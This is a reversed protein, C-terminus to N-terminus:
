LYEVLVAGTAGTAGATFIKLETDVTFNENMEITYQGTVSSDVQTNAVLLNNVATTGVQIADAGAAATDVFVKIRHVRGKVTGITFEGTGTFTAYQARAFNGAGGVAATVLGDVYAKTTADSAATPAALGTVRQGNIVIAGGAGASLTLDGTAATVSPATVAGLAVAGDAGRVVVKGATLDTASSDLTFVGTASAYTLGTGVASLADKARTEVYGAAEIADLRGDLAGEATTARSIEAAIGAHLENIALVTNTKETTTLESIDGVDAQVGAISTVLGQVASTRAAVEAALDTTLTGEAATARAVEAALDTTLTGEAATARAAEAVVAAGVAEIAAKFTSTGTAASGAAFAVLTGDTALGLAAQSADLEAQVGAVAGDVYTKTAIDGVNAGAELKGGTGIALLKGANASLTEVILDQNFKWATDAMSWTITKDTTGKLTIGGGNAGSDTAATVVGEGDYVVGIEINKDTVTMVETKITTTTGQVTLDGSLTLNAAQVDAFTSGTKDKFQFVNGNGVLKPGAKGFQVDSGVGVLGFNKINAM